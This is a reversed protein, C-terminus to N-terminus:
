MEMGMTKTRATKAIANVKKTIEFLNVSNPSHWAIVAAVDEKSYKQLMERAIKDDDVVTCGRELQAKAALMYADHSTKVYKCPQRYNMIQEMRVSTVGDTLGQSNLGLGAANFAPSNAFAVGTNEILQGGKFAVGSVNLKNVNCKGISVNYMSTVGSMNVNQLSCETFICCIIKANKGFSVNDFVINKFDTDSFTNGETLTWAYSNINKPLVCKKFTCNCFEKNKGLRSLDSQYFVCNEFYQKSSIEETIITIRRGSLTAAKRRESEEARAISVQMVPQMKQKLAELEPSLKVSKQPLEKEKAYTFDCIKEADAAAKFLAEPDEKLVKIWSKIYAAHQGDIDPLSLGLDRCMFMSGLEARLEEIAYKGKEQSMDRNLRSPHGTAHALEHLATAYFSEGSKFAVRDPLHIEDKAPIYYAGDVSGYYVPVGVGKILREAREKATWKPQPVVYPKLGEIQEANFVTYRKHVPQQLRVIIENGNEDLENKTYQWYAVPVGKAGKRVYAGLERAQNYTMWRPDQYDNIIQHCMLLFLNSGRYRNGTIANVPLLPNSTKLNWPQRWPVTGNELAKVIEGTIKKHEESLKDRKEQYAAM